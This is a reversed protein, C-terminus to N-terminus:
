LKTIKQQYKQLKSTSKPCLTGRILDRFGDGKQDLIDARVGDNGDNQDVKSLM